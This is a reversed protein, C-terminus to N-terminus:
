KGSNVISNGDSSGVMVMLALDDIYLLESPIGNRAESPVVDNVVGFLLPGLVSGQHM